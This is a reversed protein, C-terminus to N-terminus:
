AAHFADIGIIAIFWSCRIGYSRSANMLRTLKKVALRDNNKIVAERSPNRNAGREKRPARASYKYTVDIVPGAICTERIFKSGIKDKM